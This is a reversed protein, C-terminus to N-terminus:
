KVDNSKLPQAKDTREAFPVYELGKFRKANEALTGLGMEARRRDVNEEDEIQWFTMKGSSPDRQVQSGYRQPRGEIMRVRDDLLAFSSKDADGNEMANQLIPLYRRMMEPTSHQIVLFAATAAKQGFEKKGPWGYTKVIEEIRVQNAKDINTQDGWLKAREIEDAAKSLLRRHKQDTELMAELEAKLAAREPTLAVSPSPTKEADQAFAIGCSLLLNLLLFRVIRIV